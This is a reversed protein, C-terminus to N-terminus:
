LNNVIENIIKTEKSYDAEVIKKAEVIQKLLKLATKMIKKVEEKDYGTARDILIDLGSKPKSLEINLKELAYCCYDIIAYAEFVEPSEM